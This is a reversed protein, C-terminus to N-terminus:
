IVHRYPRSKPKSIRSREPREGQSKKGLIKMFHSASNGVKIEQTRDRLAITNMYSLILRPMSGYPIPQSVFREGDWLEGAKVLLVAGGCRREFTTGDVKSRPLGVQCMISHFYTADESTARYQSIESSAELLSEEFKSISLPSNM